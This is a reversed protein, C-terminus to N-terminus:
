QLARRWDTPFNGDEGYSFSRQWGCANWLMNFSNRMELEIRIGTNELLLEPMILNASKILKADHAHTGPTVKVGKVNLLTLILYYPGPIELLDMIKLM